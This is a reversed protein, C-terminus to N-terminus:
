AGTPAFAHPILHWQRAILIKTTPQKMPTQEPNDKHKTAITPIRHTLINEGGVQQSMQLQFIQAAQGVLIPFGLFLWVYWVRFKIIQEVRILSLIVIDSWESVSSM